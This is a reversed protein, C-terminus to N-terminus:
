GGGGVAVIVGVTVGVDVGAIRVNVGVTDDSPPPKGSGVVRGGWGGASGVSV